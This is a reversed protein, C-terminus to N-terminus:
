LHWYHAYHKNEYKIIQANNNSMNRLHDESNTIVALYQHLSHFIVVNMKTNSISIRSYQTTEAFSDKLTLTLFYLNNNLRQSILCTSHINVNM